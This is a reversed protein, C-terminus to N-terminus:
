LTKLYEVLAARESPSLTRGITGKRPAQGPLPTEFLHGGNGNGRVTAGKADVTRLLFGGNLPATVYGVKVPDFGRNGLWFAKPREAFPSLLDYLTPVAGNHLYPATAWIGDLPRAKYAARTGDPGPLGDRIGNARHGNMADRDAPAVKHDDYWRYVVKEVIQGLAPGFAYVGNTGEVRKAGTFGFALPARVDRTKMDVAQAPDTGIAEATVVVPRLYRQGAANAPLWAPSKWFADSGVAPLHCGSCHQTYLAAGQVALTRDIRPLIGEPWVPARLGTFRRSETPQTTGALMTEIAHLRDIPITSTFRPAARGDYNVLARVGMAEGANRVMPQEISSNYQVWDFWATDWIHPYAVPASTAAFNRPDGLQSGFVENGIRNLADLRGYGEEVNGQQHPESFQLLKAKIVLTDLQVKLRAVQVSTRGPGLVRAAFRLFRPPSLKTLGLAFGLAGRFKNVDTMAPGGDILITTGGYEIRGTHCAACTFGLQDFPQGNTPDIASTRAFGIPLGAPNADSRPSPIFGFRDLYAPDSFLGPSTLSPVPRELAVFWSYPIPLTDTGQSAHHYWDRAADDWGQDLWVSRLPAAYRPVKPTAAPAVGGAVDGAFLATAGILLLGSARTARGRVTM